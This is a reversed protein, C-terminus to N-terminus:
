AGALEPWLQLSGTLSKSATGAVGRLFGLRGRREALDAETNLANVQSDTNFRAASADIAREAAAEEGLRLASASDLRVGRASLQARQQSILRDMRNRSKREEYRGIEARQDAEARAVAANQKGISRQQSASSLGAVGSVILGATAIDCM